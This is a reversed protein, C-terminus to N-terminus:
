FSSVVHDDILERRTREPNTMCCVVVCMVVFLINLFKKSLLLGFIVFMNVLNCECM